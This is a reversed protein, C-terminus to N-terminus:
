FAVALQLFAVDNGGGENAQYEFRSECGEQIAWGVGLSLRSLDARGAADPSFEGYRGVTYLRGFEYLGQAYYGTHTSAHRGDLGVRQSIFEGKASLKGMSIQVDGGVLAMDVANDANIFSACSGGVEIPEWPTVGVRGGVTWNTEAYVLTGADDAREYGFGNAGYVILSAREAELYGQLGFDNWSDHTNDVVLPAAVLKRDVCPYVHWDIGFPIDFQGVSIGLGTIGAVPSSSTEVDGFIPFDVVFTGLEFSEGNYAIAAEVSARGDLSKALGVEMQGVTFHDHEGQAACRYFDGFGSVEISALIQVSQPSERGGTADQASAVSAALVIFGPLVLASAKM